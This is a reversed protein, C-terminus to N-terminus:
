LFPRSKPLHSRHASPAPAQSSQQGTLVFVAVLLLVVRRRGAVGDTGLGHRGNADQGNCVHGVYTQVAVFRSILSLRGHQPELPRQRADAGNPVGTELGAVHDNRQELRAVVHHEDDRRADHELLTAHRRGDVRGITPM